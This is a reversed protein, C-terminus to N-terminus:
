PQGLIIEYQDKALMAQAFDGDDDASQLTFAVEILCSGDPWAELVM